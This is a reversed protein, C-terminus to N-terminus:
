VSHGILCRWMFLVSPTGILWSLCVIFSPPTRPVKYPLPAALHHGILSLIRQISSFALCAKIELQRSLKVLLIITDANLLIFRISTSPFPCSDNQSIFMFCIDKKSVKSWCYIVDMLFPRVAADVYEDVNIELKCENQIQLTKTNDMKQCPFISPTMNTKWSVEAIKRASDQLQRLPKALEDRLLIQETSRDGPIFCSALAAVQHHNLDNFTGAWLIM